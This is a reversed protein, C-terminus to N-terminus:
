GLVEEPRLDPEKSPGARGLPRPHLEARVTEKADLLQRCLEIKSPCVYSCLGCGVCLDIGAREAEELADRYLYKHILQPMIGAPCVEECYGCSVCARLAGHVASTLPRPFPRRLASLFCRSHSHRGWGPRLFGMFERETQEPLVTLGTCEAGLGLREKGIMEGTLVGGDLIRVPAPAVRSSLMEMLPYGPMARLHTPEGVGPGGLAVIRDTCPRSLSLARDIALVGETRLAWVPSGPKQRLGLARAGIAPNDFPYRLPVAVMKLWSFGQLTERVRRALDSKVDPLVLYVPPHETKEKVLARVHELGSAYNPLGNRLQVDGRAGFPELNLTSVIVARPAGLPDPLAGTHADYLFQWAGLKLLKLRKVGAPGMGEPVSPLDEDPRYAEEPEKIVNELAIHSQAPDLRVVGARPAVLPVGFNGPDEALTRGARVREGERVCRESFVFRSSRLPLYLFEPEPLEVISGSPRGRLIISHGGKLRM